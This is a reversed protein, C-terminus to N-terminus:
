HVRPPLFHEYGCGLLTKVWPNDPQPDGNGDRPKSGINGRPNHFGYKSPNHSAKLYIDLPEM